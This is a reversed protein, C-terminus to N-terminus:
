NYKVLTVHLQGQSYVYNSGKAVSKGHLLPLLTWQVSAPFQSKAEPYCGYVAITRKRITSEEKGAAYLLQQACEPFHCM